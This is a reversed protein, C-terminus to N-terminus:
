MSNLLSMGRTGTLIYSPSDWFIEATVMEIGTYDPAGHAKFKSFLM